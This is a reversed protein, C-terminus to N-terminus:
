LPQFDVFLTDNSAPTFGTTFTSSSTVTIDDGVQQRIGNYYVFIKGEDFEVSVTFSTNSGNCQNSLDETSINLVNKDFVSPYNVAPM